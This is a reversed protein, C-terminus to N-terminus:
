MSKPLSVYSMAQKVNQWTYNEWKYSKFCREIRQNDLARGKGDMSIKIDNEKLPSVYEQYLFQSGQDSNVIEPKRHIKIAKKVTEIVFEKDLTNSLGFGIIHRSYWDIIAV